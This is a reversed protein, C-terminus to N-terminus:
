RKNRKQETDQENDTRAQPTPNNSGFKGVADNKLNNSIDKRGSQDTEKRSGQGAGQTPKNQNGTRSFSDGMANPNNTGQNSIQQSKQQSQKGAKFSSEPNSSFGRHQNQQNSNNKNDKM